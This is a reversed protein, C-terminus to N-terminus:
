LPVFGALVLLFIEIFKLGFRTNAFTALWMGNATINVCM